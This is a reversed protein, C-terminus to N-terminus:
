YVGGGWTYLKVFMMATPPLPVYLRVSMVSRINSKQLQNNSARLFDINKQLLGAPNEAYSKM